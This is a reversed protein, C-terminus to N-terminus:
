FSDSRNTPTGKPTTEPKRPPQTPLSSKQPTPRPLGTPTPANTAGPRTPLKKVPQASKLTPLTPRDVPRPAPTQPRQTKDENGHLASRLDRGNLVGSAPKTPQTPTQHQESKPTESKEEETTAKTLSPNKDPIPIRPVDKVSAVFDFDPIVARQPSSTSSGLGSSTLDEHEPIVKVEVVRAHPSKAVYVAEGAELDQIVKPPIIYDDVKDLMGQGTASGKGISGFLGSTHEVGLRVEWKKDKGILGALVEADALTNARHIVFCNVIGLLQDLFSPDIRKLDGLAQTALSISMGASRSKNILGTIGESDLSSFEDIFINLQQKVPEDILDGTVTKLDSIILNAILKATDPYTLADLSFVIVDGRKAARYIDINREEDANLRMWRGAISGRIVQLERLMGDIASQENRDLKKTTIKHVAERVEEYYPEEPLHRARDALNAPNLLNILDTMADTKEDAPVGIMVDFAVQVYASTLIKYYDDSWRRSAITMDKRRSADGRSLPDYFAPGHEAPGKYPLRPDQFVFHQFRRNYRRSYEALAEPVDNGGKLDIFVYGHGNKIHDRAQVLSTTTKGSGSAGLFITHASAERATQVIKDGTSEEIGLTAGDTPSNKDNMINKINRRRRLWQWPTMRFDSEEWVSRRLWRWYCYSTGVILGFTVSLPAQVLMAKLVLSLTFEDQTISKVLSTLSQVYNTASYFMAGTITFALIILASIQALVTHKIRWRTFALYCIAASLAGIPAVLVLIIGVIIASAQANRRDEPSSDGAWWTRPGQQEASM